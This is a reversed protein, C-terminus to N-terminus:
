TKKEADAEAARDDAFSRNAADIENLKERGSEILNRISERLKSNEAHLGHDELGFVADLDSCMEIFKDLRSQFHDVHMRIREFQTLKELDSSAIEANVQEMFYRRKSLVQTKERTVLPNDVDVKRDAKKVAFVKKNAEKFEDTLRKMEADYYPYNTAFNESDGAKLVAHIRRYEQKLQKIEGVYGLLDDEETLGELDYSEFLDEVDSRVKIAETKLAEMEIEGTVPRRERGKFVRDGTNHYEKYDLSLVSREPNSM